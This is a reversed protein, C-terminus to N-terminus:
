LPRPKLSPAPDLPPPPAQPKSHPPLRPPFRMLGAWRFDRVGSQRDAAALLHVAGGQDEPLSRGITKCSARGPSERGSPAPSRRSVGVTRTAGGKGLGMTVWLAGYGGWLAGYGGWLFGWLGIVMRCHGVFAVCHGVVMGYLGMSSSRQGMVAGWHVMVVGCHGVVVGYHGMAM